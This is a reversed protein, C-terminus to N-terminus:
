AGSVSWSRSSSAARGPGLVSPCQLQAAAGAGQGTVESREAVLGEAGVEGFRADGPGPLLCRGAQCGLEPAHVEVGVHVQDRGVRLIQDHAAEAHREGVPREEHVPDGVPKGRAPHEHHHEGVRPVQVRGPARDVEVLLLDAVERGLEAADFPVVGLM